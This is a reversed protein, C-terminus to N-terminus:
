IKGELEVFKVKYLLKCNEKLLYEEDKNAITYHTNDFDYVIFRDGKKYDQDNFSLSYNKILEVLYFDDM